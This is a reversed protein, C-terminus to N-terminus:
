LNNVVTRMVALTAPCATKRVVSAATQFVWDTESGAKNNRNAEGIGSCVVDVNESRVGSLEGLYECPRSSSIKM